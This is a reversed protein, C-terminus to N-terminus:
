TEACSRRSSRRACSRLPYQFNYLVFCRIIHSDNDFRRGLIHCSARCSVYDVLYRALRAVGRRGEHQAQRGAGRRQVGIALQYAQVTRAFHREGIDHCEVHVFIDPQGGAVLRAVAGEHLAVEEVVHVYTWLIDVYGVAVGGVEFVFAGVVLAAYGLCPTDIQEHSAHAFVPVYGEVFGERRQARARPDLGQSGVRTLGIRSEEVAVGVLHRVRGYGYAHAGHQRCFAHHNQGRPKALRACYAM